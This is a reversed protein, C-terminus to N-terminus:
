TKDIETYPFFKGDKLQYFQGNKGSADTLYALQLGYKVAVEIQQSGYAAESREAGEPLTVGQLKMYVLMKTGSVEAEVHAPEPTGAPIETQSPQKSGEPKPTAKVDEPKKTAAPKKTSAPKETSSPAKTASADAKVTVKASGAPTGLSEEDFSYMETTKVSVNTSGAKKAKFKISASLSNKGAESAYLVIKGNSTNSGSVYELVNKDYSFTAQVVGINSGKFTVKVTVTDGTKVSSSGASVAVSAASAATPLAMLAMLLLLIAALWRFKKLMHIM